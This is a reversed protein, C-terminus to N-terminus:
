IAKSPVTNDSFEVLRALGELTLKLVKNYTVSIYVDLRHNFRHIVLKCMNYFPKLM